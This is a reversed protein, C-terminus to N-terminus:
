FLDWGYVQLSAASITINASQGIVNVRLNRPNGTHSVPYSTPLPVHLTRTITGDGHTAVVTDEATALLIANTSDFLYSSVEVDQAATSVTLKVVAHIGKACLPYASGTLSFTAYASTSTVTTITGALAAFIPSPSSSTSTSWQTRGSAYTPGSVGGAFLVYGLFAGKTVTATGLGTSTPLGVAASPTGWGATPGAAQTVVLFGRPSRPQRAGSAVNTYRAWRPLGFPNELLFVAAVGNSISGAWNNSDNLDLGDFGGPLDASIGSARLRGGLRRHGPSPTLADSGSVDVNGIMLAKGASLQTNVEYELKGWRPQDAGVNQPAIIRDDILPRVDWFTVTDNTTTGTPVSAVALPLWASATGPFGGGATGQRVRYILGGQTAKSVTAAAFTNTAPNWIDRNDTEPTNLIFQCEIVDIRTSGSSNGTMVLSSPIVSLGVDRVLKYVSSDPDGDPDVIFVVGATVTLDLTGINPVVRLGSVVEGVMPNGLTTVPAEVGGADLDDAGQSVNMLARLYEARDAAVFLQARNQDTSIARELTNYIMQKGGSSM